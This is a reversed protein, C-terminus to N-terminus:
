IEYKYEESKLWDANLRWIISYNLIEPLIKAKKGKLVM